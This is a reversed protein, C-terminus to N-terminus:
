RQFYLEIYKKSYHTVNHPKIPELKPFKENVAEAIESQNLNTEKILRNIEDIQQQQIFAM